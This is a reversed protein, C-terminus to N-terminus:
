LETMPLCKGVITSEIATNPTTRISFEPTSFLFLLRTEFTRSCKAISRALSPSESDVWACILNLPLTLSGPIEVIGNKQEM